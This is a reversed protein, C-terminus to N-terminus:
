ACIRTLMTVNGLVRQALAARLVAELRESSECDSTAALSYIFSDSLYQKARSVQVRRAGSAAAWIQKLERPGISGGPSLCFKFHVVFRDQSATRPTPSPTNM